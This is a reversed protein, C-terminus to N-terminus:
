QSGGKGIAIKGQLPSYVAVGSEEVAQLLPIANLAVTGFCPLGSLLLADMKHEEAAQKALALGPWGLIKASGVDASSGVVAFDMQEAYDMLQQRQEKLAGHTDEPADIRCYIWARKEQKM